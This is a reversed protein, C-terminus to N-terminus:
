GAAIQDKDKVTVGTISISSISDAINSLLLSVTM